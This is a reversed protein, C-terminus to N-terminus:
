KKKGMVTDILADYEKQLHGGALAIVQRIRQPQFTDTEVTLNCEFVIDKEDTIYYKFLKYQKNYENLVKLTRYKRAGTVIGEAVYIRVIAYISDDLIVQLRLLQKAIDLHSYFVVPHMPGLMEATKFSTIQLTELQQQFREAKENM